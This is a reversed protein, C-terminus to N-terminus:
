LELTILIEEKELRPIIDQVKILKRLYLKKSDYHNIKKSSKDANTAVGAEFSSIKDRVLRLVAM